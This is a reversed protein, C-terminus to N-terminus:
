ARKQTLLFLGAGIGLAAAGLMMKSSGNGNGTKGMWGGSVSEFETMPIKLNGEFSPAARDQFHDQDVQRAMLREAIPPALTRVMNIMRGASGVFIERSPSHIAKLLMDVVQEASYVPDMPKVARGTYNAAHQFLPTDISAPLITCVHIDPADQLEMRLCESLGVIAHKSAVYASTYPQGAKGVVSAMNILTGHGQERFYPLVARAGYVYGFFNTEIVNRFDEIPADEIRAFLTVAANNVWVDIRGFSEIAKSALSKVSQENRVDAQIPIAKGGQRECSQALRELADKRRSAIIVTAGLRALRLAAARGIGSSAGTIVIVSDSIQGTM